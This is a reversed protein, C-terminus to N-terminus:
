NLIFKGSMTNVHGLFNFNVRLNIKSIHDSIYINSFRLKLKLM